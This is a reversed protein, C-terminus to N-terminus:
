RSPPEPRPRRAVEVAKERGLYPTLTLEVLQPAVEPLHRAEGARLKAAIVGNIGSVLVSETIGPLEAGYPTETRGSVLLRALRDGSDLSRGSSSWTEVLFLADDPVAAALDLTVGVGVKVKLPWSPQVRCTQLLRDVYQQFRWQYAAEIADEKGAFQTSFWARSVGGRGVIREVTVGNPGLDVTEAVVAELLKQRLDKEKTAPTPRNM